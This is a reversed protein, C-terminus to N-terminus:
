RKPPKKTRGRSSLSGRMELYEGIERLIRVIEGNSISKKM